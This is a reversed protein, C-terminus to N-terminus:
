SLPKQLKTRIFIALANFTLLVVLLVVIGAAALDRFDVRPDAAWRYIQLPLVTFESMLNEPTRRLFLPVGLVLLPAAEGIARSMALIAGTMISPISAPLTMRWVMQWRTSGMALAGQRLSNPVARIAEQSAIIVIPLIVLMLTLGGALVGSGFPLRIYFWSDPTGFEFGPKDRATGFINFLRAFATLGIIGYVISPVGSLNSINLRIFNTLRNKPAFEELYIATAVGTPLAVLGCIACVWISGWLPARIGAQAPFRSAYSTFFDWRLYGWLNWAAWVFLLAFIIQGTRLVPRPLPVFLMVGLLAALGAGLYLTANGFSEFPGPLSWATNFAAVKEAELLWHGGQITISILLLSLVIIAVTTCFLCIVLFARNLNNRAALSTPVAADLIQAATRRRPETPPAQGPSLARSM